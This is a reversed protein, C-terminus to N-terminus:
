WRVPSSWKKEVEVGGCKASAQGQALTAVERGSLFHVKLSVEISKPLSYCITTKPNFPNPYAPQLEFKHPTTSLQM